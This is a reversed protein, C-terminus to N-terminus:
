CFICCYSAFEKKNGLPLKGADFLKRSNDVYKAIREKKKDWGQNELNQLENLIKQNSSQIDEYDEASYISM